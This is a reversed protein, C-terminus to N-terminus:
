DCVKIHPNNADVKTEVMNQVTATFCEKDPVVGTLILSDHSRSTIAVYRRHPLLSLQVRGDRGETMEIIQVFAGVGYVEDPSKVIESM